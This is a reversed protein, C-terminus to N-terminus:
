RAQHGSAYSGCLSATERGWTVKAETGELRREGARVDAATGEDGEQVSRAARRVRVQVRDQGRREAQLSSSRRANGREGEQLRNRHFGHRGDRNGGEEGNAVERQGQRGERKAEAKGRAEAEEAKESRGNRWVRGLEVLRGEDGGGGRERGVRGEKGRWASKRM